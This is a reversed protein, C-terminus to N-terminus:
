KPSSGREDMMVDASIGCQMMQSFASTLAAFISPEPQGSLKPQQVGQEM